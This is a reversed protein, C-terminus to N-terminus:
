RTVATRTDVLSHCQAPSGCGGTSAGRKDREHSKQMERALRCREVCIYCATCCLCGLLQGQLQAGLQTASTGLMSQACVAVLLSCALCVSVFVPSSVCAQQLNV